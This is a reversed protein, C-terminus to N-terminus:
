YGRLYENEEYEFSKIQAELLQKELLEKEQDIKHDCYNATCHAICVTLAIYFVAKSIKVISDLIFETKITTRM